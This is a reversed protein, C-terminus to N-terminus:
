QKRANRHHVLKDRFHLFPFHRLSILLIPINNLLIYDFSFPPPKQKAIQNVKTKQKHPTKNQKTEYRHFETPHRLFLPFLDLIFHTVMSRLHFGLLRFRRGITADKVVLLRWWRVLQRGVSSPLFCKSRLIASKLCKNCWRKLISDISTVHTVRPFFVLAIVEPKRCGCTIRM